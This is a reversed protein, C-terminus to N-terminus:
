LLVLDSLQTTIIFLPPTPNIKPDNPHLKAREDAYSFNELDLARLMKRFREKVLLSKTIRPLVAFTEPDDISFFFTGEINVLTRLATTVVLDKVNQLKKGELPLVSPEKEM